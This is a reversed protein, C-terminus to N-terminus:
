RREGMAPRSPIALTFDSTLRRCISFQLDIWEIVMKKAGADAADKTPLPHGSDGKVLHAKEM